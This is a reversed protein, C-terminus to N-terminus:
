GNRAVSSQLHLAVAELKKDRIGALRLAQATELVYETCPGYHGHAGRVIAILQDKSLNNVYADTARDMTFALAQINGQRTRCNLWKPIYAGSPMERKWLEKLTAPVTPAAIRFAMGKCSGGKDLGFVLGPQEPTGRNVRSWLCLARHYGNLVALRREIFDFEPRWVLSGYGFVWIDQSPAWHSLSHDLSAQREADTLLRFSRRVPAPNPVASSNM